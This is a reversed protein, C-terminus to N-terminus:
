GFCLEKQLQPVQEFSANAIVSVPRLTLGWWLLIQRQVLEMGHM